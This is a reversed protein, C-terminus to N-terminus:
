CYSSRGSPPRINHRLGVLVGGTFAITIFIQHNFPGRGQLKELTSSKYVQGGTALGCRPYNEQRPRILGLSHLIPLLHLARIALGGLLGVVLVQESSSVLGVDQGDFTHWMTYDVLGMATERDSTVEVCVDSMLRQQIWTM